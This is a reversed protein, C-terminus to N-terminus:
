RRIATRRRTWRRRSRRPRWSAATAASPAPQGFDQPRESDAGVDRQVLRPLNTGPDRVYKYHTSQFKVCPRWLFTSMGGRAAATDAWAEDVFLLAEPRYGDADSAVSAHTPLTEGQVAGMPNGYAQLPISASPKFTPDSRAMRYVYTQACSALVRDTLIPPRGGPIVLHEPQARSAVRQGFSGLAASPTSGGTYPEARLGLFGEDALISGRACGSCYRLAPSHGARLGLVHAVPRRRVHMYRSCALCKGPTPPLARVGEAEFAARQSPLLFETGVFALDTHDGYRWRAMWVCICREGLCCPREGSRVDPPRLHADDHSKPVVELERTPISAKDILDGM